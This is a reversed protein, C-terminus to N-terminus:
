TAADLCLMVSSHFTTGDHSFEVGGNYKEAIDHISKLGLGKHNPKTSLYNKGNQRVIGDFSNDVTIVLMKGYYLMNLFVKRPFNLAADMANELLNGLIISLDPAEIPLNKPINIRIFFDINNEKALTHYHSVLMNVVLNDCIKLMECESFLNLYQNLYEKAEMIENHDLLGKLALMHHKLDHRMKRNKEINEYVAQYQEDRLKLQHILQMHKAPLIFPLNM